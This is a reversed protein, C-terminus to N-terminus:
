PEPVSCAWESSEDDGSGVCKVYITFQLLYETLEVQLNHNQQETRFMHCRNSAQGDQSLAGEETAIGSTEEM